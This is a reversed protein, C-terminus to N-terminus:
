KVASVQMVVPYIDAATTAQQLKGAVAVHRGSPISPMGPPLYLQVESVGNMPDFLDSGRIDMEHDLELVLVEIKKDTEPDGFNPPGYIWTTKITGSLSVVCPQYCYPPTRAVTADSALAGDVCGTLAFLLATAALLPTRPMM